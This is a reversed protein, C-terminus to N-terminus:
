GKIKWNNTTNRDTQNNRDQKVKESGRLAQIVADATDGKAYPVQNM